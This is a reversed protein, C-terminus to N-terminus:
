QIHTNTFNYFNPSAIQSIEKEIHKDKRRGDQLKDKSSKVRREEKTELLSAVLHIKYIKSWFSHTNLTHIFCAM